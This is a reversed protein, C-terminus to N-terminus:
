RCLDKPTVAAQAMDMLIDLVNSEGVIHERDSEVLTDGPRMGKYDSILCYREAGRDSDRAIRWCRYNNGWKTEFIKGVEVM